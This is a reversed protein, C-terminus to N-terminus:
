RKIQRMFRKWAAESEFTLKLHRSGDDGLALNVQGIKLLEGIKEESRRLSATLKPDSEEEVKSKQKKM